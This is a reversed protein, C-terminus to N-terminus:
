KSSNKHITGLHALLQRSARIADTRFKQEVEFREEDLKELERRSVEKRQAFRPMHEILEFVQNFVQYDSDNHLSADLHDLLVKIRMCGESIEVQEDIMARCLIDLSEILGLQTEELSDEAQKLDKQAARLKALQNRIAVLLAVCIFGGLIVLFWLTSESM